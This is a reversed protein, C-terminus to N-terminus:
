ATLIEKPALKHWQENYYLCNPYDNIVENINM